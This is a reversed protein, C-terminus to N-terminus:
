ILPVDIHDDHELLRSVIGLEEEEVCATVNDRCNSSEEEYNRFARKEAVEEGAVPWQEAGCMSKDSQAARHHGDPEVHETIHVLL